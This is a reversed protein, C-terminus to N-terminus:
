YDYMCCVFIYTNTFVKFTGTVYLHGQDSIVFTASGGCAVKVINVNDLGEAYAPKGEEGIDFNGAELIAKKRASDPTETFRGLTGIHNYKFFFFTLIFDM